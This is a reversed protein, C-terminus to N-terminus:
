WNWNEKCNEELCNFLTSHPFFGCSNKKPGTTRLSKQPAAIKVTKFFFNQCNPFDFKSLKFLRIKVTQFTSNQCNSFDFKSLKFLRIKVTQFTSNQCNLFPFKSLEFLFIRCDRGVTQSGSFILISFNLNFISPFDKIITEPYNHPFTESQFLM